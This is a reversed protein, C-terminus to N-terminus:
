IIITKKGVPINFADDIKWGRDLRNHILNKSGGLRKNADSIYEDKYIIRKQSNNRSQDKATAWRCNEKCYNGNNDIRDLSTQLKTHKNLHELYSAEMDNKFDKYSSWLLKIGRGGYYKYNINNKYTCRARIGRYVEALFNNKRNYKDRYIQKLILNQEKTLIDLAKLKEAYATTCEDSCFKRTKRIKINNFKRYCDNSCNLCKNKEM